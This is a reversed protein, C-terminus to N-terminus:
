FDMEILEGLLEPAPDNPQDLWPALGQVLKDRAVHDSDSDAICLRYALLGYPQLATSPQARAQMLWWM